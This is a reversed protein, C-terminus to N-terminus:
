DKYWDKWAEKPLLSEPTKNSYEKFTKKAVALGEPMADGASFFGTQGDITHEVSQLQWSGTEDMAREYYLSITEKKGGATTRNITVDAIPEFLSANYDTMTTIGNKNTTYSVSTPGAALNDPNEYTVKLNHKGSDDTWNILSDHSYDRRSGAQGQYNTQVLEDTVTQKITKNGDTYSLEYGNDIPKKYLERMVPDQVIDKTPLYTEGPLETEMKMVGKPASKPTPVVSPAVPREIPVTVPERPLATPVEPAVAQIPKAIKPLGGMPGEGPLGIRMGLGPMVPPLKSAELVKGVNEVYEQGAATRPQYTFDQALEPRDVRENTGQQINQVVGKGLGLFPAAAGSIVSMAAEGVGIVKEMANRPQEPAVPALPSKPAQGAPTPLADVGPYKPEPTAPAVPAAQASPVVANLVPGVTRELMSTQKPTASAGAAIQGLRDAGGYLQITRQDGSDLINKAEEATPTYGTPANAVAQRRNAAGAAGQTPFEGRYAQAYPNTAYEPANPNQRIKEQEYAAMQYPLSILSEPAVAGQVISSGINKASPLIGKSYNAANQYASSLSTDALKSFTPHGAFYAGAVDRTTQVPSSLFKGFLDAVGAPSVQTAIKGLSYLDQVSGKAVNLATGAIDKGVQAAVPGAEALAPVVKGAISAAQPALNVSPESAKSGSLYQQIQEDSTGDPVELTIREGNHEVTVREAM